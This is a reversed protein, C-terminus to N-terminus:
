WLHKDNKHLKEKFKSSADTIHVPTTYLIRFTDHQLRKKLFFTSQHTAVQAYM